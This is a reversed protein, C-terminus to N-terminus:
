FGSSPTLDGPVSTVPLVMDGFWVAAMKLLKVQSAGVDCSPKDNTPRRQFSLAPLTVPGKDLWWEWGTSYLERVAHPRTPPAPSTPSLLLFTARHPLWNDKSPGSGGGHSSSPEILSGWLDMTMDM